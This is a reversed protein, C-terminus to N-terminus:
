SSSGVPAWEEGDVLRHRFPLAAFLALAADREGSPVRGALALPARPATGRAMRYPLYGTMLNVPADPLHAALWTLAPRTCCALHGPMLLHRVVLFARAAADPLLTTLTPWYGRIGALKLACADNGFKLDALYTAVIGTLQTLVEPTTWLNTNWVVHTDAPCHALTRLIYLLNVDPVGGVFDVSTAGQSRRLAIRAALAEPPMALGHALPARVQPDDSCFACRFNCGTLYIAHTPVFVREEGLHLYEKYVRGGAGLGCRAGAPPAAGTRDVLCREACVDCARYRGETWAIAADLRARDIHAAPLVLQRPNRAQTAGTMRELM